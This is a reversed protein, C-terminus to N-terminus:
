RNGARRPRQPPYHRDLWALSKRAVVYGLEDHRLSARILGRVHRGANGDLDMHCPHCLGVINAPVDDGSSSRPVLHHADLKWGFPSTRRTGRCARCAMAPYALGATERSMKERVAAPNVVRAPPKPDATV